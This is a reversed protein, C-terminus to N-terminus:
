VYYIACTPTFEAEPFPGPATAWLRERGILNNDTELANRKCIHLAFLITCSDSMEVNVPIM